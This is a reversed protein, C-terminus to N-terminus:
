GELFYARVLRDRPGDFEGLFVGEWRGLQPKGGTIPILCQNGLLVSKIHADSNGESHAYEAQQPITRQLAGLIDQAVTPDANENVCLGATTHPIYVFLLGERWGQEAAVERLKGTIDILEEREGTAVGFETARM